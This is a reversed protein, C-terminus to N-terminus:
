DDVHLVGTGLCKRCTVVEFVDDDVFGLFVRGDLYYFCEREDHRLDPDTYKRDDM